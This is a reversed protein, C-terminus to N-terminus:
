VIKTKKLATILPIGLIIGIIVQTIDGPVATLPTFWNGYIIVESIYYGSIMWISGLLIAIINWKFSDGNRGKRNAITGIMWGMLGRIVFTFPAWVVWGSVLDFLGMGFAGSIAGKKPGFVIAAAFLITNGLHILGGHLSFPLQFNIFKTAIFVLAILLATFVLDKTRTTANAVYKEKAYNNVKDDMIVKERM